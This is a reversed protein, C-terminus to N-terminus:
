TADIKNRIRAKEEPTKAEQLAVTTAADPARVQEQADAAKPQNKSKRRIGQALKQMMKLVRGTNTGDSTWCKKRQVCELMQAASECDQTTWVETPLRQRRQVTKELQDAYLFHSKSGVKRLNEHSEEAGIPKLNRKAQLQTKISDLTKKMALETLTKLTLNGRMNKMTKDLIDLIKGDTGKQVVNQFVKEFDAVATFDEVQPHKVQKQQTIFTAVEDSVFQAQAVMQKIASPLQSKDVKSLGKVALEPKKELATEIMVSYPMREFQYETPKVQMQNKVCKNYPVLLEALLNSCEQELKAYEKPDCNAKLDALANLKDQAAKQDLERQRMLMLDDIQKQIRAKEEPTKAEQLAALLQQMQLEYKNQADAAEKASQLRQNIQEVNNVFEELQLLNTQLEVNCYKKKYQDWLVFAQYPTTLQNSSNLYNQEDSLQKQIQQEEQNYKGNLCKLQLKCKEIKNNTNKLLHKKVLQITNKVTQDSYSKIQLTSRMHIITKDLLTTIIKNSAKEIAQNFTKELQVLLPIDDNYPNSLQKQQQYYKTIEQIIINSQQQLKQKLEQLDQTILSTNEQAFRVAAIDVIKQYPISFYLYNQQKIQKNSNQYKQYVAQMEKVLQNFEDTVLKESNQGNNYNNITNQSAKQTTEDNIDAQEKLIQNIKLKIEEANKENNDLSFYDTELLQQLKADFVQQQKYLEKSAQDIEDIFQQQQIEYEFSTVLRQIQQNSKQCKYQELLKAADIGDSIKSLQNQFQLEQEAINNLQQVCLQAKSSNQKKLTIVYQKIDNSNQQVSSNIFSVCKQITKTETDETVNLILTNQRLHDLVLCILQMQSFDQNKIVQKIEKEFKILDDLQIAYPNNARKQLQYHKLISKSRDDCQQKLNNMIEQQEKKDVTQYQNQQNEIDLDFKSSLLMQLPTKEYEYESAQINMEKLTINQSMQILQKLSNSVKDILQQEIKIGQQKIENVARQITQSYHTQIQEQRKQKLEDTSKGEYKSNLSQVNFELQDKALKQCLQKKKLKIDAIIIESEISNLLQKMQPISKMKKYESLLNFGNEVSSINKAAQKYENEAGIMKEFTNAIQNLKNTNLKKLQKQANSIQDIVLSTKSMIYRSIFSITEKQSIDTIISLIITCRMIQITKELINLQNNDCRQLLSSYVRELQQIAKFQELQPSKFKQQQIILKSIEDVLYQSRNQLLQIDSTNIDNQLALDPKKNILAEVLTYYSLISFQHETIELDKQLQLCFQYPKELEKIIDLITTIQQQSLKTQLEEIGKQRILEIHQQHQEHKDNILLQNLEQQQLIINSNESDQIIFLLKQIKNIYQEQKAQLDNALEQRNKSTKQTKIEFHYRNLLENIIKSINPKSKYDILLIQAQEGDSITNIRSIDSEQQQELKQLEEIYHKTDQQQYSVLQSETEQILKINEQSQNNIHLKAKEYTKNLSQESFVQMILSCRMIIMTKDLVDLVKGSNAKQILSGYFTEFETLLYLNEYTPNKLVKQQNIFKQMEVLIQASQATIQQVVTSIQKSDIQIINKVILDPRKGLVGDVLGSYPLFDYVYESRRIDAQKQMVKYFARQLEQLLQKCEWEIKNESIGISSLYTIGNQQIQQSKIDLQKLKQQKLQDINAQIMHKENELTCQSLSVLLNQVQQEYLQQAETAEKIAKSKDAKLEVTKKTEDFDKMKQELIQITTRSKYEALLKFAADITQLQEAKQLYNTEEQKIKELDDAQMILQKSGLQRLQTIETQIKENVSKVKDSIDTKIKNITEKIREDSLTQIIISCRMSNMTKELIDLIKGETGKQVIFQYSKEFDTVNVIEEINPNRFFKQQQIMKNLEFCIQASLATLQKISQPLQEKEVFLMSPINLDPRKDLIQDVFTSYAIKDFIFESYTIDTQKNICKMYSKQLESLLSQLETEYTQGQLYQKLEEIASDNLTKTAKEFQKLKVSRNDDLIYQMDRKVYEDAASQITALLKIQEKVYKANEEMNIQTQVIREARIKSQRIAEEYSALTKNVLQISNRLKYDGLAKLAKEADTTKEILNVITNEEQILKEFKQIYLSAEKSDQHKLTEIHDNIQNIITKSSEAIENQVQKITKQLTEETIVKMMLDCRMQIYAKELGDLVTGFTAKKLISFYMKEMDIYQQIDMSYPNKYQKQQNMYKTLEDQLYSSQSALKKIIDQVNKQDVLYLNEVQLEPKTDLIKDTLTSYPLTDLQYNSQKADAQKRILKTFQKQLEQLLQKLEWDAKQDKTKTEFNQNTQLIKQDFEKQRQCWLEDLQNQILKREEDTTANKLKTLLINQQQEYMKQKESQEKAQQARLQKQVEADKADSVAKRAEQMLKLSPSNRYESILQVAQDGTQIQKAQCVYNQENKILDSLQPKIDILPKFAYQQGIIQNAEEQIIQSYQEIDKQIKQATQQLSQETSVKMMLNTRMGQYTKHLVDITPGETAQKSVTLFYKELELLSYLDSAYPNKYVKQQTIFKNLEFCIHANQQSLQQISIQIDQSFMNKVILDQKKSIINDILQSFPLAEFLYESQRIDAQKQMCKAYQQQLLQLLNQFENEIKTPLPIIATKLENIGNNYSQQIQIELQKQRQSRQEDLQKQIEKKESEQLAQQMQVLYLQQQAEYKAQTEAIQQAQQSREQLIKQYRQSESYSKLLKAIIQEIQRQKYESLLQVASNGTNLTKATKVYNNEQLIIKQLEDIYQKVEKSKETSLQSIAAKINKINNKSLQDIENQVRIITQKESKESICKLLLHARMEVYVDYLSALILVDSCKNNIGQYFSEMEILNNILDFLPNKTQQQQIKFQKLCESVYESQKNVKKICILLNSNDITNLNPLELDHKEKLKEFAFQSLPIFEYNFEFFLVESQTRLCKNFQYQLETILSNYEQELKLHVGKQKFEAIKHQQLQQAQADFEKLKNQKNSDIMQQLKVQEQENKTQQKSVTLRVQLDHFDQQKQKAKLAIQDIKERLQLQSQAFACGDIAQQFLISNNKNKYDSLLQLAIDCEKLNSAQIQTSKEDKMLIELQDAIQLLDQSGFSMCQTILNQIKELTTTTSISLEKKVKEITQEISKDTVVKILMNSRMDALNNLVNYLVLGHSAKPILQQLVKEIEILQYYNQVYPNKLIKQQQILKNLETCITQSQSTIVKAADAIKKSDYQALNTVQLDKRNQLIPEVIQQFSITDLIYESQKIESQKSIYKNYQKQLEQIIYQCEQNIKNIDLKVTGPKQNTENLVIERQVIQRKELEKQRQLRLQELLKIIEKTEEDNKAQQMLQTLRQQEQEYLMQENILQKENEARLRKQTENENEAENELLIDDITKMPTREKYEQLQLIMNDVDKTTEARKQLQLEENELASIKDILEERNELQKKVQKCKQLVLNTKKQIESRCKLLTQNLTNQSSTKMVLGTRMKTLANALANLVQNHTTKKQVNLCAKEFELFSQLDNAYPNKMEKQSFIYKNVEFCIYTSQAALQKQSDQGDFAPILDPRRDVIADVIKSYPTAEVIYESQKTDVLKRVCKAYCKSLEQMLLACEQRIKNAESTSTGPQLELESINNMGQELEKQKQSRQDDLLKQIEKRQEDTEANEMQNMLEQQQAQFRMQADAAAQAAKERELRMNVRKLAAEHAAKQKIIHPSLQRQRYNLVLNIAHEMDKLQTARTAFEQEEKVLNELSEVYLQAEKQDSKKSEQIQIQLSALQISTKQLIEQKMEETIQKFIQDSVTRMIIGYRMGSFTYHLADIFSPDTQKVIINQFVKEFEIIPLYEETIPNKLKKQNQIFKTIEFCLNSSWTQLQKSTEQADDTQLINYVVLDPRKDNMQNVVLSYPTIDYRYESLKVDTYKLITQLFAQKMENVIQTFELEKQATQISNSTFYIIGAEQSNLALFELERQREIKNEEFQSKLNFKEDDKLIQKQKELIQRQREEFRRQIEAQEYSSKLRELKLQASAKSEEYAMMIKDIQIYTNRKRYEELTMVAQDPQKIQQVVQILEKEDKELQELQEVFLFHEKDQQTRLFQATSQIKLLVENSKLNVEDIVQNITNQITEPTFLNMFLNSRIDKMCSQLQELTYGYTAKKVIKQYGKEINLLKNLDQALPNKLVVQNNILTQIDYGILQSQVIVAQQASQTQKADMDKMNTIEKDGKNKIVNEALNSLPVNDFIYLSDTNDLSQIWNSYLEQVEVMLQQAEQEIAPDMQEVEQQQVGKLANLQQQLLLKEEESKTQQMKLMLQRQAQEHLMKNEAAEKALRAKEARQIALQKAEEHNQLIKAISTLQNRKRYEALYKASREGDKLMRSKDSYQMEEKQIRDLEDAYYTGEKTNLERLLKSQEQLHNIMKETRMQIEQKAVEVTKRLSSGTIQRTMLKCRINNAQQQYVELVKGDTIKAIYQQYCKEFDFVAQLNLEEVSNVYQKQFSILKNLEEQILQSQNILTQVAKTVQKGDMSSLNNVKLQQQVELIDDAILYLPVVDYQYESLKLEAQKILCKNAYRVLESLLADCEKELKQIQHGGLLNKLESQGVQKIENIITEYQTVKEKKNEFFQKRLQKKYENNFEADIEQLSTLQVTEYGEHEQQNLKSENIYINRQQEQSLKVTSVTKKPEQYEINLKQKFILDTDLRKMYNEYLILVTPLNFCSEINNKYDTEIDLEKQLAASLQAYDRPRIFQVQNIMQRILFSHQENITLVIQKSFKMTAIQQKEDLIKVPITNRFTQIIDDIVQIDLNETKKLFVQIYEELQKIRDYDDICPNNRTQQDIQLQSLAALYQNSEELLEHPGEIEDKRNIIDRYTKVQFVHNQYRPHILEEVTRTFKNAIDETPQKVNMANGEKVAEEIVQTTLIETQNRIEKNTNLETRSQENNYKQKESSDLVSVSKTFLDLQKKFYKIILEENSQVRNQMMEQQKQWYTQLQPDEAMSMRRYGVGFRDRQPGASRLIPQLEPEADPFYIEIMRRMKRVARSKLQGRLQKQLSPIINKVRTQTFLDQSKQPLFRPPSAPLKSM